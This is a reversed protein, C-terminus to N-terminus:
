LLQNNYFHYLNKTKKKELLLRCVLNERSQLESTHEESRDLLDSSSPSESSVPIMSFMLLAPSAILPRLPRSFAIFSMSACIFAKFSFVGTLLSSNFFTSGSVKSPRFLVEMLRPSDAEM